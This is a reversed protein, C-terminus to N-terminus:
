LMEWLQEPTRAIYVNDYLNQLKTFYNEYDCKENFSDGAMPYLFIIRCKSHFLLKGSVCATSYYSLLTKDEMSGEAFCIEFPAPDEYMTITDDFHDYTGRPHPKLCFNEYGVKEAIKGILSAYTKPNNTVNDTGQGLFLYPAPIEKPSFAFVKRIQETVRRIRDEDNPIQRLAFGTAKEDAVAAEALSPEFLYLRREARNIDFRKLVRYLFRGAGSSVAHVPPKTYSAFGDEFRHFRIRRDALVASKIVEKSIEDPLGPSAFFIDSYLSLEPIHGDAFLRPYEPNSILSEKLQTLAKKYPNLIRKGDAFFVDGFFEKLRGSDYVERLSATKDTLLIDADRDSLFADKLFLFVMLHYPTSAIGLVRKKNEAM